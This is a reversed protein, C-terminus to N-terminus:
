MTWSITSSTTTASRSAPGSPWGRASGQPRPRQLRHDVAGSAEALTIDSETIGGVGSMCSARASRTPASSRSRLRRHGRGLGARRGKISSRSNRAAPATRSTAADHRVLSRRRRRDRAASTERKQRTRYETVERARAESEVVAVRDGAEPAGNFGLVEVPVSPGAEKVSARRQRRHPRSRPGMRRGRGRHRRRQLTGRQVLVTAVPGRGRDLKAEIVTGEASRDPNAKLDLMEAQLQSRRSCSTSVTAHRPASVEVELTEGGM